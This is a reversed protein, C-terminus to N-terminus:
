NPKCFTDIEQGATDYFTYTVDSLAESFRVVTMSPNVDDVKESIM